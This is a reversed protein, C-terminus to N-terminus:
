KGVFRAPLGSLCGQTLSGLYPTEPSQSNLVFRYMAVYTIGCLPWENPIPIPIPTPITAGLWAQSLPFDLHASPFREFSDLQHFDLGTLATAPLGTALRAMPRSVPRHSAYVALLHATLFCSRFRGHNRLRPPRYLRLCFGPPWLALGIPVGSDRARPVSVFPNELFKPYRSAEEQLLPFPCAWCHLVLGRRTCICRCPSCLLM